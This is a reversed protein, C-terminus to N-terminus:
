EVLLGSRGVNRQVRPLMEEIEIVEFYVQGRSRFLLSVMSEIRFLLIIMDYMHICKVIHKVYFKM